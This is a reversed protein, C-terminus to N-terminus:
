LFHQNTLRARQQECIPLIAKCAQIKTSPTHSINTQWGTDKNNAYPFYQNALRPRLQSCIPFIPKGAQTKTTSMLINTQLDQDKNNPLIPKGIQTKAGPTYSINTQWGPDKNNAYSFYEFPKGAQTKRTPM